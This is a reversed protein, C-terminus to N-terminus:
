FFYQAPQINYAAPHVTNVIERPNAGTGSSQEALNITEGKRYGNNGDPLLLLVRPLGSGHNEPPTDVVLGIEDSDLEVVTGPPYFGLMNIFVKLLIPDFDKGVKDVMFGLALDPSLATKRYVRPSTIADFVDAITIIGGFLSIRWNAAKPYGTHDYKMHHEFVPLVLQAKRKHPARLMVIQRVSHLTHTRMVNLELNTLKDPKKTISSPISVKGLDHFLACLGLKELAERSLGIRKGICLSLLAVNISHSYTEDDYIRLTSLGQLVPEDDNLLTVLNQVLRVSRNIGARKGSGLKSAVEKLNALAYSYAKRARDRRSEEDLAEDDEESGDELPTTAKNPEFLEVWSFDKQHIENKLWTAPDEKEGAQNVTRAFALIATNSTENIEPFFTCGALQRKEFYNLMVQILAATTKGHLIKEDGLFFRGNNVQLTIEEEGEGCVASVADVFNGACEISQQNLDNHITVTRLLSNLTLLLRQGIEHAM